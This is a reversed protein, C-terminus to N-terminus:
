ESEEMGPAYFGYVEELETEMVKRKDEERKWAERWKVWREEGTELGHLIDFRCHNCFEQSTGDEFTLKLHPVSMAHFCSCTKGLVSPRNDSLDPLEDFDIMGVIIKGNYDSRMM